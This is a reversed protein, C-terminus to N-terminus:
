RWLYFDVVSEKGEETDRKVKAKIDDVVEFAAEEGITAAEEIRAKLDEVDKVVIEAGNDIERSLGSAVEKVGEEVTKDSPTASILEQTVEVTM